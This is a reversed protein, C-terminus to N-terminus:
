QCYCKLHYVARLEGLYCLARFTLSMLVFGQTSQLGELYANVREATLVTKTRLCFVLVDDLSSYQSPSPNCLQLGEVPRGAAGDTQARWQVWSVM